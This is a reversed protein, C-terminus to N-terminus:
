EEGRGKVRTEKRESREKEEEGKREKEKRYSERVLQKKREEVERRKKVM